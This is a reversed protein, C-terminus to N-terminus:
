TNCKYKKRQVDTSNVKCLVNVTEILLTYHSFLIEFHEDNNKNEELKTEYDRFLESLNDTNYSIYNEFIKYDKGFSLLNIIVVIEKFVVTRKDFFINQLKQKIAKILFKRFNINNNLEHSIEAPLTENKIYLKAIYQMLQKYDDDIDFLFSSDHQNSLKYKELINTVAIDEDELDLYSTANNQEDLM